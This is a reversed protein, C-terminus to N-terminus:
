GDAHRAPARPPRTEGPTRGYHARFVRTFHAQSAFGWRHAIEAVTLHRSGPDTLQERARALRRDLIYRAPTVGSDRFVRSLHRASVGIAAAVREASLWPDSLHREVYDHALALRASGAPASGAGLRPAALARVLDLVATETRAPDGSARRATWDTLLAEMASTAAGEIAAGRAFLLPAPLDGPVCREAFTERPIDVLLQRMTSPFGFLYSQRTDYLVLDGARVTLCGDEHFFVAQGATLLSVFVSDKPLDRCTRRSREVVHENGTIEALRLGGLRFNTQTALLGDRSYSSCTLGVLARRNYEEWFDIRDAPAVSRTSVHSVLPASM